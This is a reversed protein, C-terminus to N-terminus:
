TGRNIRLLSISTKRLAKILKTDGHDVITLFLEKKESASLCELSVGTERLAKFLTSCGQNVANFFLDKKDAASFAEATVGTERLESVMYAAARHNIATM